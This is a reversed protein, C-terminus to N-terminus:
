SVDNLELFSKQFADAISKLWLITQIASLGKKNRIERESHLQLTSINLDINRIKM